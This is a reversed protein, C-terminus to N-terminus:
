LFLFDDKRRKFIFLYTKIYLLFVYILLILISTNINTKTKTKTKTKTQTPFSLFFPFGNTGNKFYTMMANLSIVPIKFHVSAIEM